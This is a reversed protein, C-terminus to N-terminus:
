KQKKYEKVLSAVAVQPNIGYTDYDAKGAEKHLRAAEVEDDGIIITPQPDHSHGCQKCKNRKAIREKCPCSCSVFHYDKNDYKQALRRTHAMCGVSAKLSFVSLLLFGAVCTYHKM